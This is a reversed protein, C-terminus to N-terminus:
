RLDSLRGLNLVLHIAIDYYYTGSQSSERGGPVEHCCALLHDHQLGPVANSAPVQTAMQLAANRDLHATLPDRLRM